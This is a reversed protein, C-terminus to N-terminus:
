SGRDSLYASAEADVIRYVELLTQGTQLALRRCDEFEPAIRPREGPLRRIKLGVEGLSSAFRVIEREAEYRRVERVRLGLTSTERLMVHAVHTELTPACLAQLVVGPRNKKMQVPTCWVDVAGAAFLRDIAWAIVEAPMDDINTELLSMVRLALGSESYTEGLWLRLVNARGPTDRGGAGYGARSLRMAPREFIALTTLLAAGTPTLLEFREGERPEAVPAGAAALLALTAPGPVPIRGHASRTEGSGVPLASAFCRQVGLLRLGAITGLVDVIADVAGVEHFEVEEVDCGHVGAEARALAEFVALGTRRDQDPLDSADVISTIDSLHRHPQSKDQLEVDVKTAAIGGRQVRSAVLRFGTVPLSALEGALAEVPVGADVIAGLLMDGSAGSFCDFYAVRM